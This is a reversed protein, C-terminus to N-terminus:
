KVQVFVSELTKETVPKKVNLIQGQLNLGAALKLSLRMNRKEIPNLLRDKLSLRLAIKEGVQGLEAGKSPYETKFEAIKKLRSFRTDHTILVEASGVGSLSGELVVLLEQTKEDLSAEAISTPLSIPLMSEELIELVINTKLSLEKDTNKAVKVSKKQAVVFAKPEKGLTVVSEQAEAKPLASIKVPFEEVIGNTLIQVNVENSVKKKVVEPVLETLTCSYPESEYGTETRCVREYYTVSGCEQHGPVTECRPRSETHCEQETYSVTRCSGPENVDHCSQGGGVTQCVEQGRGNTRCVHRTPREVCVQRTGGGSCEQRTRTVPRCVQDSENHCEQRSPVWSCEQRSRPEDQCHEYQYPKRTYCTSPVERQVMVTVDVEKEVKLVESNQGNFLFQTELQAHSVLPLLSILSLAFKRIM